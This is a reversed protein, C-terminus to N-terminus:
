WMITLPCFLYMWKNPMFRVTGFKWFNGLNYTVCLCSTFKIVKRFVRTLEYYYVYYIFEYVQFCMLNQEDVNAAPEVYMMWNCEHDNNTDLYYESFYDSQTFIKVPFIIGPDLSFLKKAELPGFRTGRKILEKACVSHSGSAMIEIALECPLSLKARRPIISDPIQFRCFYM